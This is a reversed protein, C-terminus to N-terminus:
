SILRDVFNSPFIGQKSVIVKAKEVFEKELDARQKM